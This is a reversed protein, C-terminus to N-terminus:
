ASRTADHAAEGRRDRTQLQRFDMTASALIGLGGAEATASASAPARSGAWAPRCSRCEVGFLDCFRTHLRPHM